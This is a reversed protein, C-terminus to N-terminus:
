TQSKPIKVFFASGKHKGKSEVWIKGKHHEVINKATYLAIGMGEPDAKKAEKSRWFRSFIRQRDLWKIGIGTDEVILTLFRNDDKVYVSIKGGM